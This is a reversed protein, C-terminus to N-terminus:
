KKAPTGAKPAPKAEPTPKVGEPLEWEPQNRPVAKVANVIAAFTEKKGLQNNQAAEALKDHAACFRAVGDKADYTSNEMAVIRAFVESYVMRDVVTDAVCITHTEYTACRRIARSMSKKDVDKRALALDRLQAEFHTGLTACLTKIPTAADIVLKNVDVKGGSTAAANMQEVLQTVADRSNQDDADSWDAGGVGSLAGELKGSTEADEGEAAWALRQGYLSLTLMARRWLLDEKQAKRCSDTLSKEAGGSQTGLSDGLLCLEATRSAGDAYVSLGQGVNGVGAGSRVVSGGCAPALVALIATGAIATWHARAVFHYQNSHAMAGDYEMESNEAAPRVHSDHQLPIPRFKGPGANL